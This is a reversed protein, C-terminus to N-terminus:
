APDGGGLIRRYAALRAALRPDAAAAAEVACGPEGAHRCDGFGCAAARRELEPFAALAEGPALDALGFSRVGPTDIVRTGDPLVRLTSATTTHRGKGDAERVDRVARAGGPDLANLLSSKGAGSQGVFVATRGSIARALDDLGRGDVASVGCAVLGAAGYLELAASLAAEAAGGACLDVKNVALVAQVGGRALAIWVRDVLGTKITAGGAPVVVVGVEVNAAIVRERGPRSPDPRALVGQRPARAVVRHVGPAPTEVVVADGVALEGAALAPDVEAGLEVDDVLVRATRGRPAVVVGASAGRASGVEPRAASLDTPEAGRMAEFLEGEATEDEDWDSWDRKRPRRRSRSQKRRKAQEAILREEERSRVKSAGALHRRVQEDKSKM